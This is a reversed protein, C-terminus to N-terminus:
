TAPRGSYRLVTVFHNLKLKQISETEIQRLFDPIKDCDNELMKIFVAMESRLDVMWAIVDNKLLDVCKLSERISEDFKGDLAFSYARARIMYVDNKSNPFQDIWQIFKEPNSASSLYPVELSMRDVTSLLINPEDASWSCNNLRKGFSFHLVDTPVYLPLAFVFVYFSKADYSSSDFFFGGIIGSKIPTAILRGQTRFNLHKEIFLRAFPKIDSTKM